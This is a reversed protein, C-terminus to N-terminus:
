THYVVGKEEFSGDPQQTRMLFDLPQKINKEDIDIHKSAQNYSKAVFATLWTSGFRESNGFASYSGDQHKYTLERQYGMELVRKAKEAIEPTLKGLNTLYELVIISPVFNLMNQEGCGYPM